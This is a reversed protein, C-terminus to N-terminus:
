WQVLAGQQGPDSKEPGHRLSKMVPKGEKERKKFLHSFSIMVQLNQRGM